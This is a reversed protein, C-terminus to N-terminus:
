YSLTSISDATKVERGSTARRRKSEGHHWSYVALGQVGSRASLSVLSLPHVSGDSTALPAGPVSFLKYCGPLCSHMQSTCLCVCLCANVCAGQSAELLTHMHHTLTVPPPMQVPATDPSLTHLTHTQAIDLPRLNHDTVM